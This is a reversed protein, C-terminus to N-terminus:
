GQGDCSVILIPEVMENLFPPEQDSVHFQQSQLEYLLVLHLKNLQSLIVHRAEESSNSISVFFDGNSFSCHTTFHQLLM